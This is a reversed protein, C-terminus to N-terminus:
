EAKKEEAPEAAKKMAKITDQLQAVQQSLMYTKVQEKAFALEKAARDNGLNNAQVTTNALQEQCAQLPNVKAKDDALAYGGAMLVSFLVSFLVAKDVRNM